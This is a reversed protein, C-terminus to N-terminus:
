GGAWQALFVPAAEGIINETGTTGVRNITATIFDGASFSRVTWATVLPDSAAGGIPVDGFAVRTGTTTTSNLFISAQSRSSNQPRVNVAVFYKGATNFTIKSPATTTFMSDTDFDETGWTLVTESAPYNAAVTITNFLASTYVDGTAITPPNTWAM